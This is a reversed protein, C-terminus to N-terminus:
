VLTFQKKLEMKRSNVVELESIDMETMDIFDSNALAEIKEVNSFFEVIGNRNEVKYIFKTDVKKETAVPKMDTSREVRAKELKKTYRRLSCKVVDYVVGSHMMKIKVNGKSNFRIIEAERRRDERPIKALTADIVAVRSGIVFKAKRGRKNRKAM